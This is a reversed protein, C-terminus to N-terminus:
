PHARENVLRHEERLGHLQDLGRLAAHDDVSCQATSSVGLREQLPAGTHEADVTIREREGRRGGAQGAETIAEGRHLALEAVGGGEHGPRHVPQHEVQADARGLEVHGRAAEGEHAVTGEVHAHRVLALGGGLQDLAQGLVLQGVDEVLVGILPVGAADGALELGASGFVVKSATSAILAPMARLAQGLSMWTAVRVKWASRM